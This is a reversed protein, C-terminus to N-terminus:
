LVGAEGDMMRFQLDRAGELLKAQEEKRKQEKLYDSREQKAKELIKARREKSAKEGDWEFRPLMEIEQTEEDLVIFARYTPKEGRNLQIQTLSDSVLKIDSEKYEKGTRESLSTTYQGYVSKMQKRVDEVPAAPMNKMLKYEGNIDTMSWSKTIRGFAKRQAVAIDFGVTPLLREVLSDYEQRMVGSVEPSSTSWPKDYSPHSSVLDDLVAMNSDHAMRANDKLTKKEDPTMSAWTQRTAVASQIDMGLRVNAAVDEIVNVDTESFDQLSEPAYDQAQIYLEVARGLEPSEARNASRFMGAIQNPVVKYERMTDVATKWPDGSENARQEFQMDVAKRLEKNKPDIGYGAAAINNLEAVTVQQEVLKTRKDRIARVMSTRTSGDILNNDFLTQVKSEDVKVDGSDIALWTDSVVLQKQKEKQAVSSALVRTRNSELANIKAARENTDLPISSEPDSLEAITSDISDVDANPDLVLKDVGHLYESKNILESAKAAMEPSEFTEALSRALEFKGSGVASQIDGITKDEIFKSQAQRSKTLTNIYEEDMLQQARERWAARAKPDEIREANIDAYTTQFHKLLQPMVEYAPVKDVLVEEVTGDPNVQRRTRKININDPLEDVGIYDRGSFQEQFRTMDQSMSLAADRSELDTKKQQYEQHAQDAYALGQAVAGFGAAAGQAINQISPHQFNQVQGSGISPLKM